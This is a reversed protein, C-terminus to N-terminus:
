RPAWWCRLSLSHRFHVARGASRSTARWLSGAIELVDGSSNRSMTSRSMAVRSMSILAVALVVVLPATNPDTAHGSLLQSFGPGIIWFFACIAIGLIAAIQRVRAPLFVAVGILLQLVIFGDIVAINVHELNRALSFDVRSLWGPAGNAGEAVTAALDPPTRPGHWIQLIAGGVWYGAWVFALWAKPGDSQDSTDPWAATNPWAAGALLAYLLAAGPAGTLLAANPGTLGGLGEGLYWVAMSWGISAALSAVVTRRFLLGMGIALQISAFAVNFAVPHAAVVHATRTVPASVFWAQGSAAPSLVETAFRASFMYPQFQLGADILWLIGLTIQLRRRTM